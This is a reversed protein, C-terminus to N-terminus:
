LKYFRLQDQLNYSLYLEQLSYCNSIADALNGVAHKTIKNNFLDLKLLRCLKTLSQTIKCIGESHLDNNSLMIDELFINSTIVASLEDAADDTIGNSCLSLTRLTSLFKLAHTFRVVGKSLM